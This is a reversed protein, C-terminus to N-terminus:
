RMVGPLRSATKGYYAALAANNMEAMMEPPVSQSRKTREVRHRRQFAASSKPVALHRPTSTSTGAGGGELWAPIPPTARQQQQQQQQQQQLQMLSHRRFHGLAAQTNALIAAAAAANAAPNNPSVPAAAVSVPSTAASAGDQMLRLQQAVNVAIQAYTAAPDLDTTPTSASLLSVAM